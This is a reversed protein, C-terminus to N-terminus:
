AARFSPPPPPTAGPGSAPHSNRCPMSSSRSGGCESSSHGGGEADNGSQRRALRGPPWDRSPPGGARPARSPPRPASRSSRCRPSPSPSLPAPPRAPPDGGPGVERPGAEYLVEARPDAGAIALVATLAHARAVVAAHLRAPVSPAHCGRSGLPAVVLLGSSSAPAPRPPAAPASSPPSPRSTRPASARSRRSSSTTSRGRGTGRSRSRSWSRRGWGVGAHAVGRKPWLARLMPLTRARRLRAERAGVSGSRDPLQGAVPSAPGHFGNASSSPRARPPPARQSRPPLPDAPCRNRSACTGSARTSRSRTRRRRSSLICADM